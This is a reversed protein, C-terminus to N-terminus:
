SRFEILQIRLQGSFSVVAACRIDAEVQFNDLTIHTGLVAFRIIELLQFGNLVPDV